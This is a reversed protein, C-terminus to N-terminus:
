LVEVDLGQKTLEEAMLHKMAVSRHVGYACFFAIVVPAAFPDPTERRRNPINSLGFNILALFQAIVNGNHARTWALLSPHDGGLSAKIGKAHYPNEIVRCDLYIDAKPLPLVAEVIAKIGFSILQLKM